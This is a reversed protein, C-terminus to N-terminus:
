GWGEEEMGGCCGRCFCALRFSLVAGCVGVGMVRFVGFCEFCLILGGSEGGLLGVVVLCRLFSAWCCLCSLMKWHLAHFGDGVVCARLMLVRSVMSPGVCVSLLDVGGM